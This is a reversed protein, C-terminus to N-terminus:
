TICVLPTILFVLYRQLLMTSNCDGFPWFLATRFRSTPFTTLRTYFAALRELNGLSLVELPSQPYQFDCISHSAGSLTLSPLDAVVCVEESTITSM